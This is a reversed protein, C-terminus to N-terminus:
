NAALWQAQQVATSPANQVMQHWIGETGMLQQRVEPLTATSIGHVGALLQLNVDRTIMWVGENARNGVGRPQYSMATNQLRSSLRCWLNSNLMTYIAVPSLPSPPVSGIVAAISRPLAVAPVYTPPPPLLM